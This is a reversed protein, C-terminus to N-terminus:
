SAKLLLGQEYAAPSLYDLASHLRHTNYYGEIYRFIVSKAEERSIFHRGYVVEVKLNHFFSEAVANDYCRGKASMSGILGATSIAAQYDRSAYQSGRDTHHICGQPPRRHRLAMQLARLPLHRTMRKDMAWGVIRRSCLDLLISLYLWGEDTSLYTIDGVWAHNPRQWTFRGALVNPVM